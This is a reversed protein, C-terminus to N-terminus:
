YETLWIFLLIAGQIAFVIWILKKSPESMNKLSQITKEKIIDNFNQNEQQFDVDNLKIKKMGFVIIKRLWKNETKDNQIEQIIKLKNLSFDGTNKLIQPQKTQLKQFTKELFPNILSESKDTILQHSLKSIIYKNSLAFFIFPSFIFTLYWLLSGIPRTFFTLILFPIPSVHGSHGADINKTLIFFEIITVTITILTALVNIKLFSVLAIGSLKAYYKFNEKM